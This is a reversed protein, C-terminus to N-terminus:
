RGSGADPTAPGPEGAAAAAELELTIALEFYAPSLWGQPTQARIGNVFYTPTSSVNLATGDAIDRRVDPLIRAYAADFDTVGLRSGAEARIQDPTVLMQNPLAFLWDIVEDARGRERALRVLVAEECAAIHIEGQMSVNCRNSLPYDKIVQTVAGPHSQEFRELVPKYAIHAGKCSPCQWDVFKVIVVKADGADIGLNVRPQQAWADAFQARADAAPAQIDTAAQALQGETPFMVVAGAVGVLYVIAVLFTTPEAFVSQIDGVLRGPLASVTASASAGSVIFIGIVAVYTGMCLVCGTQLVFYSVYGLYLVVALGITALAFVYAAAPSRTSRAPAFAAILGVLAFWAAGLVAVSVGAVSGYSSLYVQSCNFAANIDCPSIYTPDVLIRYHVWSSAGAFGLGLISFALIAWRGRSTM